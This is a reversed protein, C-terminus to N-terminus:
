HLIDLFLIKLQTAHGDINKLTWLLSLFHSEDIFRMLDELSYRDPCRQIMAVALAITTTKNFRWKEEETKLNIKSASGVHIVFM